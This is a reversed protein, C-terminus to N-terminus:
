NTHKEEKILMFFFLCLLSIPNCNSFSLSFPELGLSYLFIFIYISFSFFIWSPTSNFLLFLYYYYFIPLYGKGEGKCNTYNCLFLFFFLQFFIEFYCIVYAFYYFDDNTCERQKRASGGRFLTSILYYIIAHRMFRPLVRMALMSGQDVYELTMKM